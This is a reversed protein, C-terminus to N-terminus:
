WRRPATRVPDADERAGHEGAVQVDCSPRRHPSSRAQARESTSSRRHEALWRDLDAPDYVVRRGIKVFIPGGGFLRLKAFTSASSGCYAAAAPAKLMKVESRPTVPEFGTAPVLSRMGQLTSKEAALNSIDINAQKPISGAL